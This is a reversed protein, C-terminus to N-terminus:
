NEDSDKIKFERVDGTDFKIALKSDKYRIEKYIIVSDKCLIEIEKNYKNYRYKNCDDKLINNNEEDYYEFSNDKEFVLFEKKGNVERYWKFIAYDPISYEEKKLSYSIISFISILLIIIGVILKLRTKKM